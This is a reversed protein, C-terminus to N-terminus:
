AEAAENRARTLEDVQEGFEPLAKCAGYIKQHTIGLAKATAMVSRNTALLRLIEARVKSGMPAGDGYLREHKWRVSEEAHAIRCDTCRCGYSYRSDSGHPASATPGPPM